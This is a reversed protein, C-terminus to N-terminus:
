NVRDAQKARRLIERMVEPHWRRARRPRHGEAILAEGIARLSWGSRRLERMRAIVRQEYDDEVLGGEHHRLGYPSAGTARKDIVDLARYAAAGYRRAAELQTRLEALLPAFEPMSPDTPVRLQIGTAPYRLLVLAPFEGDIHWGLRVMGDVIEQPETM